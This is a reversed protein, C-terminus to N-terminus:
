IANAAGETHYLPLTFIATVGRGANAEIWISGGHAEVISRCVSLGMGMGQPKTSRFADFVKDIEDRPIGCGSDRVAIRAVGGGPRTVSLHLHREGTAQEGLAEVANMVLNLVVQQVQGRDAHAMCDTEFETTTEVQRGLLEGHLLDLMERVAESLDVRLRETDQRRVMTRLGSIVTAARKDDRVIDEFIERLERLDPKGGDIFRLAAQANSLMAALPQNLEHALSASLAGVRAVRDAHWIRQQLLHAERRARRLETVDTSVGCLAYPLGDSDLLPFKLSVYTRAQGNLDATEEFELARRTQLVRRDNALHVEAQAAPLLDFATKGIVSANSQRIVEEFQRNVLLYRGDLDKMYVVAPVNDLIAQLRRERERLERTLGLSMVGVLAMFGFEATHTFEVLGLNVVQNFLVFPIFLGLGLALTLARRHAGRRYQHVCAVIAYAFTAVIGLWAANHWGGRRHVRLDSVQEGWPLTMRQLDPFDVFGIGHPLALNAVFVTVFFVSLGALLWRPRLATYEAIFWPFIALFAFAFSFEWRRMTVLAPATAAGYASAKAVVYLSLAICTLAFLLHTRDVPRHWAILMHHLAGYVCIGSLGYLVPVLIGNM